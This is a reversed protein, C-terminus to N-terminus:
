ENDDVGPCVTTCDNESYKYVQQNNEGEFSIKVNGKLVTGDTKTTDKVEKSLYGNDVLYQASICCSDGDTTPLSKLNEIGWREAAGEILEIQRAKANKKSDNIVGIVVPTTIVAIVALIAIVTLLEILTFGNRKM